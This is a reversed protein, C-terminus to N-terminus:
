KTKRKKPKNPKIPEYKSEWAFSDQPYSQVNGNEDTETWHNVRGTNLWNHADLMRDIFEGDKGNDCSHSNVRENKSYVKECEDFSFRRSEDMLTFYNFMPRWTKIEGFYKKGDKTEVYTIAM